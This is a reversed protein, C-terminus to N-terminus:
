GKKQALLRHLENPTYGRNLFTRTDNALQSVFQVFESVEELGGFKIGSDTAFDVPTESECGYNYMVVIMDAFEQAKRLSMGYSGCLMSVFAKYQPPRAIYGIDSYRLLEQRPLIAYPKDGQQVLYEHVEYEGEDAIDSLVIHEGMLRYLQEAASLQELADTLASADMTMREYRNLLKGATDLDIVGYLLVFARFYRSLLQLKKRENYFSKDLGSLDYGLLEDALVSGEGNEDPAALGAAFLASMLGDVKGEPSRLAKKFAKFEGEDIALLAARIAEPSTMYEAAKEILEPKRCKSLGTLGCATCYKKLDPVTMVSLIDKITM